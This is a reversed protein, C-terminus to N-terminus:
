LGWDGNICVLHEYLKCSGLRLPTENAVKQRNVDQGQLVARQSNNLATITKLAGTEMSVVTM